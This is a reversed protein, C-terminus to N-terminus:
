ALRPPDPLIADMSRIGAGTPALSKRAPSPKATSSRVTMSAPGPVSPAARQSRCTIPAAVPSGRPGPASPLSRVTRSRISLRRRPCGRARPSGAPRRCRPFRGARRCRPRPTRPHASGGDVARGRPTGARGAAAPGATSRGRSRSRPRGATRRARCSARRPGAVEHGLGTDQAVEVEEGGVLEVDEVEVEGVVLAPADLDLAVGPEGLDAGPAGTRLPAVPRGREPVLLRVATEVGLVVDALDDRVGGLPVDRDDGLDVDGPVRLGRDGRVRLQAVGVDDVRGGERHPVGPADAGVHEGRRLLHQAEVLTDEVFDEREEGRGEDVQAAVLAGLVLPLLGRGGLGPHGLQTQGVLVLELGPEDPVEVAPEGLALLRSM